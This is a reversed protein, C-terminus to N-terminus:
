NVSEIIVVIDFYENLGIDTLIKCNVCVFNIPMNIVLIHHVLVFSINVNNYYDITYIVLKSLRTKSKSIIKFKSPRTFYNLVFLFLIVKKGLKPLHTKIQVNMYMMM